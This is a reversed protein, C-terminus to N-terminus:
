DVTIYTKKYTGILELAIKASILTCAVIAIIMLAKALGKM